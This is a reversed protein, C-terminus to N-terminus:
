LLCVYLELKCEGRFLGVDYANTALEVFYALRLHVCVRQLFCYGRSFQIIGVHSNKIEETPFLFKKPSIMQNKPLKM